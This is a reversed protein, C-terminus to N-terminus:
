SEWTWQEQLQVVKTLLRSGRRVLGFRGSIFNQCEDPSDEERQSKSWVLHLWKSCLVSHVFLIKCRQYVWFKLEGHKEPDETGSQGKIIARWVEDNTIHKRWQHIFFHRWVVWLFGRRQLHFFVRSIFTILNKGRQCWLLWKLTLSLDHQELSTQMLVFKLKSIVFCCIM